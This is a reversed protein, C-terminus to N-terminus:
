NSVVGEHIIIENGSDSTFVVPHSLIYQASGPNPPWENVPVTSEVELVDGATYVEGNYTIETNFHGRVNAPFDNQPDISELAFYNEDTGSSWPSLVLELGLADIMEKATVIGVRIGGGQDVPSESEIHITPNIDYPTGNIEIFCSNSNLDCIIRPRKTTVSVSSGKFVTLKGPGGVENFTVDGTVEYAIPGPNDGLENPYLNLSRLHLTGTSWYQVGAVEALLNDSSYEFQYMGGVDTQTIVNYGEQTTSLTFCIGALSKFDVFALKVPGTGTLPGTFIEIAEICAQPTNSDIQFICESDGTCEYATQATTTAAGFVVLALAAGLINFFKM